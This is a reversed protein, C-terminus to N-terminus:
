EVEDDDDFYGDDDISDDSLALMAFGLDLRETWDRLCRICVRRGDPLTYCKRALQECEQCIRRRM